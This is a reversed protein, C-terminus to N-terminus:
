ENLHAIGIDIIDEIHKDALIYYTKKGDKVYHVLRQQRLLRLQHSVASQSMDLTRAIHQVCIEKDKLLYLIKIRNADGLVKFFEALVISEDSDITDLVAGQECRNMPNVRETAYINMQEYSLM